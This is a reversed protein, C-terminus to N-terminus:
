HCQTKINNIKGEKITIFGKEKLKNVQEAINGYDKNMM